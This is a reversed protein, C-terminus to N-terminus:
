EDMRERKKDLRKQDRKNLMSEDIVQVDRRLDILKLNIYRRPNARMDWVLRNLNKSADELEYYLSDNNILLALSGDGKNIKDTIVALDNMAKNANAVTQTLRAAKLSDTIDSLNTLSNSIDEKNENLTRTIQNINDLISSIRTQEEIMLSDLNESSSELNKVTRNISSFSAKLNKRTEENFIFGVVEIATQMEKMLDEAQNRIPMMQMSVQDKLSQETEGLLTDGDEYIKNKNSLEIAIGKTGMLDMSNIRAISSDPIEYMDETTFSVLLKGDQDMLMKIDNVQGIKYGNMTVPSSVNLGEVRDYIVHYTNQQNFLDRNKLYNFGWYSVALIVAILIGTL